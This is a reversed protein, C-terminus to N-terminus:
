GIPEWTRYPAVDIVVKVASAGRGAEMNLRAPVSSDNDYEPTVKYEIDEGKEIRGRVQADFARKQEVLAVPLYTVHRPDDYGGFEAPLMLVKAVLGRTLLSDLEDRSKQRAALVARFRPSFAARLSDFFKM